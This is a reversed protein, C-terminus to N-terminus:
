NTEKNKERFKRRQEKQEDTLTERKASETNNSLNIMFARRKAYQVPNKIKECLSDPHCLQLDKYYANNSCNPPLIKKNQQKHYRLQGKILVERLQEPNKSNWKAIIEEAQEHTYGVSTLFNVLTFLFRKKGDQMGKLGSIICPPFLDAPIAEALTEFQREIKQEEDEENIVPNYEFAEFILRSAEGEKVNSTDLFKFNSIKLSDPKAYEKKFELVKEPNIPVSVLGSKEHLSYCIRYLHRSSILVTDINLILSSDFLKEFERSGCYKCEFQKKVAVKEMLKGCKPCQMFKADGKENIGCQACIFETSSTENVEVQRRCKRCYTKFLVADKGLIGALEDPSKRSLEAMLKPEIKDKLYLAIRRVGEPFLFKVEKNQVTKPFAQYPVGIHFGKGGSFKCSVSSIGHAKIEQILLHTILKSYELYPCDIDLVLDWGKRLADLEEKKLNTNLLQANNWHEESAHFSTAGQKAFELVDQPYNLADPRKGFGKEGFKVAVERDAALSVMEKQIDERKYHRLITGIDLM